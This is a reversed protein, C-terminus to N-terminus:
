SPADPLRTYVSCEGFHASVSAAEVREPDGDGALNVSEPRIAALYEFARSREQWSLFNPTSSTFSSIDLKPNTDWIRVIRDSETYPLPRLLVTYVLSFIATAAGIGLGLTLLAALTFAPTKRLVRLAYRLDQILVYTHEKAATFLTDAVVTAVFVSLGLIGSDAAEERRRERFAARMESAYETRFEAPYCYLLSSYLREPWDLARPM